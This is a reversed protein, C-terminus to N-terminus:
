IRLPKVDWIKEAYERITRDSSFTGMGAVNLVARRNWDATDVFVKDVEAQTKVYDAFDALLLYTDQRLLSESIPRFRGHDDPSWFGNAIQDIVLKLDPNEEYYRAPDYGNGKIRAVEETRHGFIFINDAGVNEHIEVNAGDMTGITLAGNLALKMNGTGSAETGATSIQESLNAAPMIMEAASVSYNPVFVVKMRDRLVPDDNVKKAVDNILKIILKAQRYASAAKGSFLFTRPTWDADPNAVMRNYRHIIHLVNLLQRKYEHFRKVQVDLMAQPDIDVGGHTKVWNALREKNTLKAAAFAKIFTPKDVHKRLKSLEDLNGRWDTGITKDILASLPRNANALWRRPTIGNTVNLFRGPFIRAFDAFITDVLLQSHLKSVGNVKHSALVCMYAMRVRREGTEDILSVRRILDPDDGHHSRVWDLFQKNIEFIIELHRPLVNRMMAVPWTELAEPMLTHNTYSFVKCCQAWATNWPVKHVDVLLRMLEPVAIAPHTDNLHIAVKDSLKSFDSNNHRFRRIIDQLSASVFFYEQRLRLERGQYSSDDPYLVRTVNESQNKQSVAQMYDGQNFLTLDLSQAARAHWLRLTNITKTQYGPVIMDHAMARVNEAEHWIAGNDGDHEVWGGFQIPFTMEPREFEWPNGLRLWDDPQEVQYGDHISQAFMGYDYRIGYGFSPLGITAMSDLFCAALRGLGGNGLGPDPEEERSAEFDLGGDAMAEALQDYIGISMLSNTLARGILFEMSLYYVRKVNQDHQNRSTEMWREVLKDRSLRALAVYWDAKTATRPDKGVFYLLRNAVYRRLAEPDNQDLPQPEFADILSTSSKQTSSSKKSM